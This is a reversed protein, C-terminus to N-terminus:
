GGAQWAKIWAIPHVLMIVNLSLSDRITVLMTAEIVVYAMVSGSIPLLGAIGYGFACAGIDSVSNVISDGYYDLSITSERYKEIVWSTNEVIEWGSEVAMAVLFRTPVTCRPIAMALLAYLILGHQIHSFTYPDFLHQSTHMSHVDAVWVLLKGCACFWTRGMARLIAVTGAAIILLAVATRLLPTTRGM